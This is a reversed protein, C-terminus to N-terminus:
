PKPNLTLLVAGTLVFSRVMKRVAQIIPYEPQGAFAGSSTKLWCQLSLIFPGLHSGISHQAEKNM